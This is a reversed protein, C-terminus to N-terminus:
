SSWEDVGDIVLRVSGLGLLLESLLSLLAKKTPM